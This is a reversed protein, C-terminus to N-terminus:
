ITVTYCVFSIRTMNLLQAFKAWNSLSNFLTHTKIAYCTYRSVRLEIEILQLYM